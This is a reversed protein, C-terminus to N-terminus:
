GSVKKGKSYSENEWCFIDKIPYNNDKFFEEEFPKTIEFGDIIIEFRYDEALQKFPSLLQGPKFAGINPYRVPSYTAIEWCLKEYPYQGQRVDNEKKRFLKILNQFSASYQWPVELGPYEKLLNGSLKKQVADRIVELKLKTFHDGLSDPSYKLSKITCKGIPFKEKGADDREIDQEDKIVARELGNKKKIEFQEFDLVAEFGELSGEAKSTITVKECLQGIALIGIGYHGITIRKQNSGPIKFEHGAQKGSLGINQIIEIFENLLIGKGNDTVIMEKFTPYGTNITVKQAGADYANSVLEKLAGAPTRYIGRSIHRLIRASVEIPYDQYKTTM